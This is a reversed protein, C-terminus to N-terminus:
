YYDSTVLSREVFSMELRMYKPMGDPLFQLSGEASYDINMSRCVVNNMNMIKSIRENGIEIDFLYPSLMSIGSVTSKPLTYKKLNYLITMIQDVESANNPILDWSFTFERPESGKYDQFYGPDILPKRYGSGSALQGIVKNVSVGGLEANTLNGAVDSVIGETTEWNHTQSDNLENPLPLAVGYVTTLGEIKPTRDSLKKQKNADSPSTKDSTLADYASQVDASAKEIYSTLNDIGGSITEMNKVILKITRFENEATLIDSPYHSMVNTNTNTNSLTM